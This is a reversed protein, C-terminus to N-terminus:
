RSEWFKYRFFFYKQSLRSYDSKPSLIPSFFCGYYFISVSNTHQCLQGGYKNLGSPIIKVTWIMIPNKNLMCTCPCWGCWHAWKWTVRKSCAYMYCIECRIELHEKRSPRSDRWDKETLKKWTLKPRGAGQRGEIQIDCATRVAGSSRKM